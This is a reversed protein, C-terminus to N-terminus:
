SMTSSTRASKTTQPQYKRTPDLTLERLLQGHQDIIRINRDDVLLRIPRGKYKRGVGINYIRGRYRHSVTGNKDHRDQRVRYQEHRAPIAGPRATVRSTYAQLPTRRGIARHPRMNNYHHTFRDVQDQLEDVDEARPQKTLFKKLTQHYREVKGCTQPHYPRSNKMVIGNVHLHSQFKNRGKQHQTTFVAGNDTLVSAPLGHLDTADVFTTLVDSVTTNLHVRSAVILRSHDDIFNLVEAWSEDALQWFTVDAQWTENPLEAEFRKYSSVPRRQPQPKVVGARKMVRWVTAVSPVSDFRQELYHQITHAGADLGDRTLEARLELIAKVIEPPTANPTRKPRRSQPELAEVGGDRYRQILKYLWGRSVGHAQALAAVPQGDLLHAEVLYRAKSV